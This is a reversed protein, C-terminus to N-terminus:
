TFLITGTTGNVFVNPSESSFSHAESPGRCTIAALSSNDLEAEDSEELFDLELLLRGSKRKTPKGGGEFGEAGADLSFRALRVVLAVSMVLWGVAGCEGDAACSSLSFM